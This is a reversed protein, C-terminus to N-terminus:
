RFYNIKETLVKEKRERELCDCNMVVVLGEGADVVV